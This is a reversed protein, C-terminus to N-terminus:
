GARMWGALLLKMAQCVVEAPYHIGGLKAMCNQYNCKEVFYNLRRKRKVTKGPKLLSERIPRLSCQEQSLTM